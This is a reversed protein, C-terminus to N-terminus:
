IRQGFSNLSRLISVHTNLVHIVFEAEGKVMRTFLTTNYTYVTRSCLGAPYGEKAQESQLVTALLAGTYGGCVPM